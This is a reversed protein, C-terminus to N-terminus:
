IYSRQPRSNNLVSFKCMPQSPWSQGVPVYTHRNSYLAEPSFGCSSVPLTVTTRYPKIFLTYHAPYLTYRHFISPHFSLTSLLLYLTFTQKRM